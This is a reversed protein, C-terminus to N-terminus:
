LTPNPVVPDNTSLLSILEPLSSVVFYFWGNRAMQERVRVQEPSLTNGGVKVEIAIAIAEYCPRDTRYWTFVFDPTGVANTTKRDTRSHICFIDRQRLWNEIHKHVQKECNAAFKDQAEQALVGSRGLKARESPEMRKLINDPLITM